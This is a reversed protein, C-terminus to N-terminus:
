NRVFSHFIYIFLFFLFLCSALWLHLNKLQLTCVRLSQYYPWRKNTFVLCNSHPFWHSVHSYTINTITITPRIITRPSYCTGNSDLKGPCIIKLLTTLAMFHDIFLWLFISNIVFVSIALSDLHSSSYFLMWTEVPRVDFTMCSRYLSKSGNHDSPISVNDYSHYKNILWPRFSKVSSYLDIVLISTHRVIFYSKHWFLDYM